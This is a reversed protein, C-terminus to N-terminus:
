DMALIAMVLMSASTKPEFVDPNCENYSFPWIRSTSGSFIARGLNGMMWIGPWTPYYSVTSARGSPGEALDPNGSKKSVAGPLQARVEVMGGQYCFKNWSQVMAARYFFEVNVFAPPNIYMNYVSIVQHDEITEIYFYCTGDDDCKTSTMSRSYIELAANVGDPKELSTWIHDKGPRFDRGPENFEDSMTLEWTRGRSSTYM